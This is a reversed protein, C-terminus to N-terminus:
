LLGEEKAFSIAEELTYTGNGVYTIGDKMWTHREIGELLGEKKVEKIEEEKQKLLIEILFNVNGRLYKDDILNEIVKKWHKLMQKNAKEIFQFSSGSFCDIKGKKIKKPNNM